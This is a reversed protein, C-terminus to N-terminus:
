PLGGAERIRHVAEVVDTFRTSLPTPSLRLLDPALHDIHVGARAILPHLRAAEPHRLTLHVGRFAPDPPSALRYGVPFLYTEALQQLLTSLALGKARLASVGAAEVIDLGASLATLSLIPPFGTQFRRIGPDPDYAPLMAVQDRHGFWGHIPQELRDQLGRRVYLFAPAGPGAYLHKYGSGVALDSGTAELEIPVGGVAHSLDWLVLAGCDHGARNVAAMDLLASSRYSVLSLSVLAVDEGLAAQLLDPDLGTDPDAHVTRVTMGHAGAVGELVYRDSPFNDDDTVITARGPRARVAAVALKYLQVSTCEGVVVEGPLAGLAHRAIRDGIREGLDLWQTRAQALGAGWQERILETIMDPTAAPLRGLSSGNLFITGPPVPTFRDRLPALADQDDLRRADEITPASIPGATM